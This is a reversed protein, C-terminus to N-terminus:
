HHCINPSQIFQSPFQFAYNIDLRINTLYLFRGIARRYTGEEHIPENQDSNFKMDKTIPTSYPKTALMGSDALIDLAYKRQNVHIGQKSRAV